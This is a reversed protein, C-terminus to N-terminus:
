QPIARADPEKKEDYENRRKELEEHVKESEEELYLDKNLSDVDNKMKGLLDIEAWKPMWLLESGARTKLRILLCKRYRQNDTKSREPHLDYLPETVEASKM